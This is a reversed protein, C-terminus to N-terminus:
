VAVRALLASAKPTVEGEMELGQEKSGVGGDHKMEMVAVRGHAPRITEKSDTSASSVIRELRPKLYMGQGHGHGQAHVIVADVGTDM